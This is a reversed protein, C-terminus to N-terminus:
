IVATNIGRDSARRRQGIVAWLKMQNTRAAAREGIAMLWYHLTRLSLWFCSIYGSQLWYHSPVRIIYSGVNELCVEM